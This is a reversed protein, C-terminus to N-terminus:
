EDSLHHLTTNPMLIVGLAELQSTIKGVVESDDMMDYDHRLKQM